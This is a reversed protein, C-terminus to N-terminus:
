VNNKECYERVFQFEKSIAHVLKTDKPIFKQRDMFYHWKSNLWQIEVDNINAKVAWLTENDWGFMDQVYSPYMSYEDEKLECMLELMDDFEEFYALKELHKRNIGVIGTNFVPHKNKNVSGGLEVTMALSNWWKAAPSRVSSNIGFRVFKDELKKTAQESPDVYSFNKFIAIGRDLDWADFFSETTLPTVDLDLYLIEEYTKSLEYMLHIKYFNVINYTTLFPYKTQYEKKYQKWKDDNEFLFYDIGNAEAYEKQRMVLWDKHDAFNRKAKENKSEKEGPFPPQWDLEESAIDIYLSYIAQNM